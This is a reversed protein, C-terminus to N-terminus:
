GFSKWFNLMLIIDPFLLHLREWKVQELYKGTMSWCPKLLVSPYNVEGTRDACWFRSMFRSFAWAPCHWLETGRSDRVLQARLQWGLGVCAALTLGQQSRSLSKCGGLSCLRSTVWTGSLSLVLGQRGQLGASALPMAPFLEVARSGWIRNSCLAKRWCSVSKCYPLSTVSKAEERLIDVNVKPLPLSSIHINGKFNIRFNTHSSM